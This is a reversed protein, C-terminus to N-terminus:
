DGVGPITQEAALAAKQVRRLSLNEWWLFLAGLCVPPLYVLLYLLLGYSLALSKDVSFLSLSLVCLYQMIGLRGPLSPVAVGMQLVLLLFVAAMFPLDLGVALFTVYNTSAALLLIVLSWKCIGLSIDWHKLVDLSDLALKIQSLLSAEASKPLVRLCQRSLALLQNRLYALLLTFFFLASTIAVFAMGPGQLWQPIRMFPLLVFLCLILILLNTLKELIVTGLAFAKSPEETEGVLYARVLEGLRAFTVFNTMQGIFIIALLKGYRLRRHHPAFYLRWRAAKALTTAIVTGLAIITLAYNVQALADRVQAFNIGRFALFMCLLSLGTAVWLRVRGLSLM